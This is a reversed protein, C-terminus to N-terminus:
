VKEKFPSVKARIKAIVQKSKIYQNNWVLLVSQTLSWGYCFQYIWSM